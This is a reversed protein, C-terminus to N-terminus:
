DREYRAYVWRMVRLDSKNYSAPSDVREVHTEIGYGDDPPADAIVEVAVDEIEEILFDGPEGDVICYISILEDDHSIGIARMEPLVSGLLGRQLSLALYSIFSPSQETM